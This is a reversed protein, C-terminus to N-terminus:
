NKVKGSVISVRVDLNFQLNQAYLPLSFHRSLPASSIVCVKFFTGIDLHFASVAISRCKRGSHFSPLHCAENESISVVNTHTTALYV